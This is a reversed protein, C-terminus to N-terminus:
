APLGVLVQQILNFTEADAQRVGTCTVWLLRTLLLMIYQIFCSIAM